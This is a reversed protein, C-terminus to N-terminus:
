RGETTTPTTLLLQAKLRKVTKGNEKARFEWLEAADKAKALETKLQSVELDLPTPIAPSDTAM